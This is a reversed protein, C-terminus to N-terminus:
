ALWKHSTHTVGLLTSMDLTRIICPLNCQENKVMDITLPHTHDADDCPMNVDAKCPGIVSAKKILCLGLNCFPKADTVEPRHRFVQANLENPVPLSM